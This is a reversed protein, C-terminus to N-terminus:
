ECNKKRQTHRSKKRLDEKERWENFEKSIRDLIEQDRTCVTASCGDINPLVGATIKEIVLPDFKDPCCFESCNSNKRSEIVLDYYTKVSPIVAKTPKSFSSTRDQAPFNSAMLYLDNTVGRSNLDPTSNTNVENSTKATTKTFSRRVQYRTTFDPLTEDLCDESDSNDESMVDMSPRVVNSCDISNRGEVLSNENEFGIATSNHDKNCGSDDDTPDVIEESINESCDELTSVSINVDRNELNDDENGCGEESIPSQCENLTSDSMCDSTFNDGSRVSTADTYTLNLDVENSYVDLSNVTSIEPSTSSSRNSEDCEIITPNKNLTISTTMDEKLIEEGNVGFSEDEFTWSVGSVVRPSVDRMFTLRENNESYDPLNFNNIEEIELAQVNKKNLKSKNDDSKNDKSKPKLWTKFLNSKSKRKKRDLTQSASQKHINDRLIAGGNIDTFSNSRVLKRAKQKDGKDKKKTNKGGDEPFQKSALLNYYLRDGEDVLRENARPPSVTVNYYIHDRRNNRVVPVSSAAM